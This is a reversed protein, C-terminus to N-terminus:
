MSELTPREIVKDDKRPGRQQDVIRAYSLDPQVQEIELRAIQQPLGQLKKGKYEIPESEEIVDFQTGLVGYQRCSTRTCSM